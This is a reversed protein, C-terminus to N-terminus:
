VRGWDVGKVNEFCSVEEARDVYEKVGEKEWMYEPQMGGFRDCEAVLNVPTCNETPRLVAGFKGEGTFEQVNLTM